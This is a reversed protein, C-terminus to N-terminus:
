ALRTILCGDTMNAETVEFLYGEAKLISCIARITNPKTIAIRCLKQEGVNMDRLQDAYTNPKCIQNIKMGKRSM